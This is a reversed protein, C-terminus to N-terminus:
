NGLSRRVAAEFFSDTDFSGETPLEGKEYSADIEEATHLGAANWRELISNAYPMSGKGTANATLEYAKRIIEVSYGFDNIWSSIFKKEKSTWAREGIGFMSRIKVEADDAAERRRLEESLQDSNVIGADYLGFAIKELYHLSKKGNAVCYTLLMMIYDPELELYDLLGALVSVEKFNFVKGVINQCEDILAASESRGELVNALEDASYRPLEDHLRLKKSKEAEKEAGKEEIKKSKDSKEPVALEAGEAENDDCPDILGVGRWFSVSAKIDAESCSILKALKKEDV